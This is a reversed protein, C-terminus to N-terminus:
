LSVPPPKKNSSFGSSGSLSTLSKFFFQKYLVNFKNLDGWNHFLGWNKFWVAGSAFCAILNECFRPQEVIEVVFYAVIALLNQLKIEGGWCRM